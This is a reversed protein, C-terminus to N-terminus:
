PWETGWHGLRIGSVDLRDLSWATIAHSCGATLDFFNDSLWVGDPVVLHCFRAFTDTTIRLTTTWEGATRSEDLLELSLNPTPWEVDRWMGPFYTVRPLRHDGIIADIFMYDGPSLDLSARDCEAFLGTDCGLTELVTEESWVVSGDLREQGFTLEFWGEEPGDNSVFFQITGAREFIIPLM